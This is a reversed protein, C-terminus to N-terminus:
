SVEAEFISSIKEWINNNMDPREADPTNRLIEMYFEITTERGDLNNIATNIIDQLEFQNSSESDVSNDDEDLTEQSLNQLAEIHVEDLVKKIKELATEIDYSPILLRLQDNGHCSLGKWSIIGLKMINEVLLTEDNLTVQDHSSLCQM